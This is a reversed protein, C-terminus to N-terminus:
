KEPTKTERARSRKLLTQAIKFVTQGLKSSAEFEIRGEHCKEAYDTNVGVSADIINM